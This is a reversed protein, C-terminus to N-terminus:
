SRREESNIIYYHSFHRFNFTDKSNIMALPSVKERRRGAARTRVV